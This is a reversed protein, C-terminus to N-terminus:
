TKKCCPKQCDKGCPTKGCPSPTAETKETKEGKKCGPKDCGPPCNKTTKCPEKGCGKQCGLNTTALAFALTLGIVVKGLTKFMSRNM